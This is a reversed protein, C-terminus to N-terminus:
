VITKLHMSFEDIVHNWNRKNQSATNCYLKYTESNNVWEEIIEIFSDESYDSFLAYNPYRRFYNFDGTKYAICPLGLSLAEFIAMGFTESKSLSLFADSEILQNHVEDRSLNFHLKVNSSTKQIAKILRNAYVKDLKNNGIVHFRLDLHNLRKLIRILMEFGKNQIFNSVITICKPKERFVTKPKWYDPVGPRIIQINKENVQWLSMLEFKTPEGTVIFKAKNRYFNLTRTHLKPMQHILAIIQNNHKLLNPDVESMCFSDIISVDYDKDLPITNYDLEFDKERLGEIIAQNYINGGSIIALSLSNLFEIKM